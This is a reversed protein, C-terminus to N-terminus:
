ASIVLDRTSFILDYLNCLDCIDQISGKINYCKYTIILLM